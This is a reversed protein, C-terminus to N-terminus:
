RDYYDEERMLVKRLHKGALVILFFAVFGFVGFFGVWADFGFHGHRLHLLALVVEGVVLLACVAALGWFARDPTKPHDLWYKKEDDNM